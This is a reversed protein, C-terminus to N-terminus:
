YFKRSLSVRLRTKRSRSCLCWIRICAPSIATQKGTRSRGLHGARRPHARAKRGIAQGSLTLAEIRAAGSLIRGRIDNSFLPKSHFRNPSWSAIVICAGQHLSTALAFGILLALQICRSLLSKGTHSTRAPIHPRGHMTRPCDDASISPAVTERWVGVGGATQPSDMGAALTLAARRRTQRRSRP